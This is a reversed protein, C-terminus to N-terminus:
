TSSMRALFATAIMLLVAIEVSIAATAVFHRLEMAFGRSWKASTVCIWTEGSHQFTSWRMM